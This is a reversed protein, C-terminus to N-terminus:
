CEVLVGGLGLLGGAQGFSGTTVAGIIVEQGGLLM